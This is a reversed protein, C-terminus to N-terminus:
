VPSVQNFTQETEESFSEEDIISILRMDEDIMLIIMTMDERIRFAVPCSYWFSSKASIYLPWGCRQRQNRRCDPTRPAARSARIERVGAM